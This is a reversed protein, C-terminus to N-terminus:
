APDRQDLRIVGKALRGALMDAFATELQDLAYTKTIMDDLKLDGSLYLDQLRAFDREPNCQGYLPNIYTKDWEFLSCDFPIVQEIGSVQVATGGHRILALPAAGLEPIATCEFAFDAGRGTAAFVADKVSALTPDDRDSLITQTAGFKRAQELREPSIDIGFIPDAGSIAAAQIVNLGIGGCGIVAVSAGASVKAANVVSGFGTMVGCGMIAGVEFPVGDQLHQCAAEKVMSFNAMTGLNFSSNIPAGSRTTAEPRPLGSKGDGNAPSSTECLPFLGDDCMACHGCAIAWNLVVHDGINFRQVGPGVARVVGAGEHGVVFPGDWNQISDWDTHCIGAAKIEVLIEDDQPPLLDIQEIAYSGDGHAIVAQTRTIPDVNSM